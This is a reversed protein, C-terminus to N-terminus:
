DKKFYIDAFSLINIDDQIYSGENATIIYFGKNKLLVKREL